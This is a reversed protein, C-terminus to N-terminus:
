RKLYQKKSYRRKGEIVGIIYTNTRKLTDQIDRVSEEVSEM